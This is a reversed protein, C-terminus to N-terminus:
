LKPYKQALNNVLSAKQIVERELKSVNVADKLYELKEEIGKCMQDIKSYVNKVTGEQGVVYLTYENTHPIVAATSNGRRIQEVKTCIENWTNKLCERKEISITSKFDDIAQRVSEEWDKLLNRAGKDGKRITCSIRLETNKKDNWNIRANLKKIVENELQRKAQPVAKLFQIINADINGITIDAPIKFCPQSTDHDNPIIGLREQYLKLQM